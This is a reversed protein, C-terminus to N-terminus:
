VFRCVLPFFPSLVVVKSIGLNRLCTYLEYADKIENIFIIVKGGQCTHAVISHVYLIKEANNNPMKIYYQMLTKAKETCELLVPTSFFHNKIQVLGIPQLTASIMVCQFHPPLYDEFITKVSSIQKDLILDAEDIIVM